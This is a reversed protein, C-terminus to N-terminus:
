YCENLLEVVHKVELSMGRQDVGARLQLQCGVNATGIVDARDIITAIDDMKAALIKMSLENQTINYSGASGCCQDAHPLAVITAGVAKLLERPAIKIKQAHLLHCPDQYAVRFGLKKKPPRLGLAHLYESIDKVKRSFQAARAISESDGSAAFLDAYNKLHAGCGAANTVIADYQETEHLFVPINKAAMERATDRYGAHASLAGCCGQAAPVHVEIGNKNLVRVTARNLDSFTTCAICGAHFLVRGRLEGEAPFTKGFESFYFEDDVVPSLAEMEALGMFKLVGTARVFSQLGSRQNLRLWSSVNALAKYDGLLKGFFYDRLKKTFWGRPCEREIQARAREALHGYQVGSPCATECAVCGLCRDIHTVYSKSIAMKGEAVDAMQRIRGRPSDMEMGLVRYTPCNNLCLGCHVCKSYLEWTPNDNAHVTANASPILQIQVTASM